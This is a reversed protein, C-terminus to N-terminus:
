FDIGKRALIGDRYYHKVDRMETVLDAAEKIFDPAYRGSIILETREPKAAILENFQEETILETVFTLNLEDLIVVDYEDSKLVSLSREFGEKAKTIDFYQPDNGVFSKAGFMEIDINDLKEFSKFASDPLGKMFQGIFVKKGAGLARLALGFCATTKGKGNGTYVHIYGKEM